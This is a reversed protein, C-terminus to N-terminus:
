WQLESTQILIIKILEYLTDEDMVTVGDLPVQQDPPPLMFEFLYPFNVPDQHGHVLLFPSRSLFYAKLRGQLRAERQPQSDAGTGLDKFRKELEVLVTERIKARDIGTQLLIIMQRAVVPSHGESAGPAIQIETVMASRLVLEATLAYRAQLNFANITQQSKMQERVEAVKDIKVTGQALWLLVRRLEGLHGRLQHLHGAVDQWAGALGKGVLSQALNEPANVGGLGEALARCFPPNGRLFSAIQGQLPVLMEAGQEPTASVPLPSPGASVQLGNLCPQDAAIRAEIALGNTELSLAVESNTKYTPEPKGAAKMATEITKIGEQWQKVYREGNEDELLRFWSMLRPNRPRSRGAPVESIRFESKPMPQVFPGPSEVVLKDSYKIVLIPQDEMGYSRHVVANVIAENWAESPLEPERFLSGNKRYEYANLYAADRMFERTRSIQHPLPGSFDRDFTPSFRISATSKVGEFKVLRIYAGALLRRPNKALFLFGARTWFLKGEKRAIAGAHFLVDELPCDPALDYPGITALRFREALQHDIEEESFECFCLSEFAIIGRDQKLQEIAEPPLEITHSDVRKWM